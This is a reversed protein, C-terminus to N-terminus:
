EGRIETAANRQQTVSDKEIFPLETAGPTTLAAVVWTVLLLTCITAGTAAIVRWISLGRRLLSRSSAVDARHDALRPHPPDIADHVTTDYSM